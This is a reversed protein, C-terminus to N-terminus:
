RDSQKIAVDIFIIAWRRQRNDFMTQSRKLHDIALLNMENREIEARRLTGSIPSATASPPRYEYYGPNRLLAIRAGASLSTSTSALM